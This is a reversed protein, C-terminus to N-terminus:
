LTVRIGFDATTGYVEATNDLRWNQIRNVITTRERTNTINNVNLIVSIWETIQQKLALDVKTYANTIMMAEAMPLSAKISNVRIFSQYEEQSGTLIM